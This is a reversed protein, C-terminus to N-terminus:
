VAPATRLVTAEHSSLGGGLQRLLVARKLYRQAHCDATFGLAGHVRINMTANSFAADAAVLNAASVQFAADSGADRLVIAAFLTQCLAAQAKVAMDACHHSIAQFAGIPKGFQTRTKAYEVAMDRAAEAIGVQQAAVLLRLSIPLPKKSIPMWALPRAGSFASRELVLSSDMARVTRSEQVDARRLLAAGEEACLLLSECDKGDVILVDAWAQGAANFRPPACPVALGIRAEGSFVKEACAQPLSLAALQAAIGTAMFAPSLLFRGLERHLLMDDTCSLGIGGLPEPVALRFWGLEAFHRRAAEDAGPKAGRLRDVPYARALVDRVSDVIQNQEASPLLNVM